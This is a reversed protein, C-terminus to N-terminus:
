NFTVLKMSLITIILAYNELLALDDVNAFFDTM